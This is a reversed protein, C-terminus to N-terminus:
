RGSPLCRRSHRRRVGNASTLRREGAQEADHSHTAGAAAAADDGGAVASYGANGSVPGGGDVDIFGPPAAASVLHTMPGTFSPDNWSALAGAFRGPDSTLQINEVTRQLPPLFAWGSPPVRSAIAAPESPGGRLTDAPPGTRERQWPWRM